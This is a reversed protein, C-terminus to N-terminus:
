GSYVGDEYQRFVAPETTAFRVYQGLSDPYKITAEPFARFYCYPVTVTGGVKMKHEKETLACGSALITMLGLLEIPMQWKLSLWFSLFLMYSGLIVLIWSLLNGQPQKVTVDDHWDVSVDDDIVKETLVEATLKAILSDTLYNVAVDLRASEILQGHSIAAKAAFHRRELMIDKFQVPASRM